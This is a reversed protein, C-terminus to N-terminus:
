ALPWDNPRYGDLYAQVLRVCQGTIPTRGNEMESIRSYLGYGLMKALQQQTLGLNSRAQKFQEPTM